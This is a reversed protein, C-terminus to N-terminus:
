YHPPVEDGRSEVMGPEAELRKRLQLVEARVLDLAKQQAYVTDSLTQLMAQQETYRLELEIIRDEMPAQVDDSSVGRSVSAGLRTM